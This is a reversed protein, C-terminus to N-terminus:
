SLPQTFSFRLSASDPHLPHHALIRTPLIIRMHDVYELHSNIEDPKFDNSQNLKPQADPLINRDNRLHLRWSCRRKRM